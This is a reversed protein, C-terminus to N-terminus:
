RRRMVEVVDLPLARLAALVLGFVVLALAAAAVPPLGLAGPVVAIAGALVLRPVFTLDPGVDRWLLVAALALMSAEAALTAIGAGRAGMVPVLSTTLVVAVCLGVVSVLLLAAHRRLSLLTYTLGAVGFACALGAAQFRLVASAPGYLDSGGVVDVVAPAGLGLVLGVAIGLALLSHTLRGVAWELRARDDRAARALVPLAAGVVLAPVVLLVEAIRFSVSLYGADRTSGVLNTLLLSIRFYVAAVATAVALPLTARLVPGWARPRFAPRAPVDRRVLWATLVLAALAAAAPVAYFALLRAGFAVLALVLAVAVAQRLLDALTALGLRLRSQLSVAFTAQLTALLLALCVLATGGVLTSGYGALVAYALALVTAAATLVLRLGLLEAFMADADERTRTSLERVGVSALGADTVGGVLAVLALVTFYRGADEVGLHRFLAAASLVSLGAGAGYGLVRVFAGRVALPGAQPTALIDTM